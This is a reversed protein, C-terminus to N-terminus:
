KHKVHYNFEGRTMQLRVFESGLDDLPEEELPSGAEYRGGRKSPTETAEREPEKAAEENPKKTQGRTAASVSAKNNRTLIRIPPVKPKSKKVKGAPKRRKPQQKQTVNSSEEEEEEEEEEEPVDKSQKQRQQNMGKVKDKLKQVEAEAKEKEAEAKKKEAELKQRIEEFARDTTVNGHNPSVARSGPKSGTASSSGSSTKSGTKTKRARGKRGRRTKVDDVLTDQAKQTATTSAHSSSEFLKKRASSPPSPSRSPLAPEVFNEPFTYSDKMTARQESSFTAYLALVAEPISPKEKDRQHEAQIEVELQKLPGGGDGRRRKPTPSRSRGKEERRRTRSRGRSRSRSRERSRSRRRSSSPSIEDRGERRDRDDRLRRRERRDYRESSRDASKSRHRRPPSRPPPTRKRESRPSYPRSRDPQYDQYFQAYQPYGGQKVPTRFYGSPPQYASQFPPGKSPTRIQLQTTSPGPLPAPQHHFSDEPRTYRLFYSLLTVLVDSCDNVVNKDNDCNEQLSSSFIKM